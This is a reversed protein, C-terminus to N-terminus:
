RSSVTLARNDLPLAVPTGGTADSEYVALAMELAARGDEGSSRTGGRGEVSAILEEIAAVLTGPSSAPALHQAVRERCPGGQYWARPSDQRPPDRYTWLTVGEVASDVILRGTTGQVEVGFGLASDVDLFGIAGSAFRVMTQGPRDDAPESHNGAPRERLRGAIWVGDGALFRMIDFLHTGNHIIPGPCIGVLSRVEGITNERVLRRVLEYTPHWRRTHNIVLTAGAKRCADLMADADRLSTTMAKECLIGRVGAEAAAITVEAHLPARTTVSVLDPRERALMERYDAYVAQVGWRAQMFQRKSENPDAAAVLRVSPVRQYSGAHTDPPVSYNTRCREEADLTAAKRGCGVIAARYTV